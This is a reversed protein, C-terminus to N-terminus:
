ISIDSVGEVRMRYAWYSDSRRKRLEAVRVGICQAYKRLIPGETPLYDGREWAGISTHTTGIHEAVQIAKKRKKMRALKLWMGFEAHPHEERIIHPSRLAAVMSLIDIESTKRDSLVHFGLDSRHQPNLCHFIAKPFRMNNQHFSTPIPILPPLSRLIKGM